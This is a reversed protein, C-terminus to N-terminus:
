KMMPPNGQFNRCVWPAAAGKSCEVTYIEWVWYAVAKLEEDPLPLPAMLGWQQRAMPPLMSKEAAPQKIYDVIHAIAKDPDAFAQHYHGSIGLLPPAAKPPPLYNHCTACVKDYVAKGQDFLAHNHEGAYTVPLTLPVCIIFFYLSSKM